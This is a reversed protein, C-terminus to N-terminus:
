ADSHVYAFKVGGIQIGKKPQVDMEVLVIERSGLALHKFFNPGFSKGVWPDPVESPVLGVGQDGTAGDCQDRIESPCASRVSDYLVYDGM